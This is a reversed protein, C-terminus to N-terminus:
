LLRHGVDSLRDRQLWDRTIASRLSFGYRLCYSSAACMWYVYYLTYLHKMNWFRINPAATSHVNSTRILSKRLWYMYFITIYSYSFRYTM